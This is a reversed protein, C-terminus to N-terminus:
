EFVDADETKNKADAKKLKLHITAQELDNFPIKEDMIQQYTEHGKGAILIVDGAEACDIAHAIATQRDQEVEAAWPCLLGQTIDDIIKDPNEFRPNDDTIIIQDSYREAIEGMLHRKDTDRNGGCGFVCWLKGHTHERLSTLAKELADPTHAYDIV